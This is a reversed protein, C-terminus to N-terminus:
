REVGHGANMGAVDKCWNVIVRIVDRNLEKIPMGAALNNFSAQQDPVRLFYHDMDDIEAYQAHGPHYSNVLNVGYLHEDRATVFDSSGYIFLVNAEVHKWKEAINLQGLDQMFTYNAPAALYDAYEPHEKVIDDLSRQEVYLQHFAKEALAQAVEISDYSIGELVLQRRQNTMMYEFWGIASTSQAVIGKVPIVQAVCPATFGGMSHGYLILKSTDIFSYNALSQIGAVLGQVEYDFDQDACPKGQSDGMGTKEIRVTAFGARTLAYLVEVYADLMGTPNDLSYCGLGGCMIVTPLKGARHPRTIITRRLADDMTFTGYLVDFDPSHERPAEALTVSKTLREGNRQLEAKIIEGSHYKDKVLSLVQAGTRIPQGDLSLLIDGMQIGAAQAPGHEALFMVRAGASDPMQARVSDPLPQFGAGLWARRPLEDAAWVVTWMLLSVLILGLHKM